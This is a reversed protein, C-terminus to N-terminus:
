EINEMIADEISEGDAIEITESEPNEVIRDIIAEIAEMSTTLVFRDDIITYYIGFDVGDGIPEIQADEVSAGVSEEPEIEIETEEEELMVYAAHIWGTEVDDGDEMEVRHWNGQTELVLRREGGDLGDVDLYETSPGERVNLGFDGVRNSVIAFTETEIEIEPDPQDLYTGEMENFENNTVASLVENNRDVTVILNHTLSDEEEKPDMDSYGPSETEFSFELVVSGDQDRTEEHTLNNGSKHIFTPLNNEIWSAVEREISAREPEHSFYNIEHGSYNVEKKDSEIDDISFGHLEILESFDEVMDNRWPHVGMDIFDELSEEEIEAVFSINKQDQSSYILLNFEDELLNTFHDTPPNINFVSLFERLHMVREPNENQNLIVLKTFPADEESDLRSELFLPLEELNSTSFSRIRDASTLPFITKITLLDEIELSEETRDIENEESDLGVLEITVTSGILSTDFQYMLVEGRYFDLEEREEEEQEHWLTWEFADFDGQFQPRFEYEYDDIKEVEIGFLVEDDEVVPEEEPQLFNIVLAVIGGGILLTTLVLVALRAIKRSKESPKNRGDTGPSPPPPAEGEDGESESSPPPPPTEGSPAEM